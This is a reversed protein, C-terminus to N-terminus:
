KVVVKQGNVVYVGKRLGELSTAKARVLQGNLSYINSQGKEVTVIDYIANEAESITLTGTLYNFYYNQAEAGSVRIVYTGAPSEITASTQAVPKKTLVSENEGNKWGSYLITFEPNPEGMKRECDAVGISLPAKVITLSGNIFKHNPNTITGASVVIPYTGVPSTATAECTISPTGEVNGSTTYGFTPSPSGYERTYDKAIITVEDAETVILKGNVLTRPYYCDNEALKPILIYEGPLSADTADTTVTILRKIWDADGAVKLGNIEANFQPNEEGQKKMYTGITIDLPAKTITLTGNIFICNPNEISGQTIVIPYTGAPSLAGATCTLQPTGTLEVGDTKYGFVPNEEGYERTYDNATVMIKDPETIILKGNTLSRFYYCDNESAILKIEYEGPTSSKTADCSITISAKVKEADEEFKLGNIILEFPPNEKGQKKTYNGISVDVPAKTITLAGSVFEVGTNTMSGQSITIPYVGAPSHPTATTSVQPDGNVIGYPYYSFTPNDDGYERTTSEATLRRPVVTLYGVNYTIPDYNPSEAGSPTILYEGEPSDKTATCTFTPQKTLSNANDRNKFGMYWATFEPNEEGAMKTMYTAYCQLPVKTITLTGNVLTVKSNTISGKSIIIDYTGANSGQTAECTIEPIGKAIGGTVEYNFMPNPDGYARTYSLATLTIAPDAEFDQRSIVKLEDPASASVKLYAKNAAVKQQSKKIFTLTGDSGMALVRMTSANHNKEGYYDGEMKNGSPPTNTDKKPDINVIELKNNAPDNSSCKIIVPTNAPITGTLEKLVAMSGSVQDIIYVKIGSSVVKFSFAAYMTTYYDNGIHVDPKVGFYGSSNSSSVPIVDWMEQGDMTNVFGTNANLERSWTKNKSDSLYLTGSFGSYSGTIGCKYGSTISFHPNPIESRGSLIDYSDFKQGVLDYYNGSVKRIYIISSPLSSVNDFNEVTKLCTLTQEQGKSRDLGTVSSVITIYRKTTKNMIRYYGSGTLAASVTTALCLMALFFSIRKM